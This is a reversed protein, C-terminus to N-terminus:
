VPRAPPVAPIAPPLPLPLNHCTHRHTTHPWTTYHCHALTFWDVSNSLCPACHHPGPHAPLLHIFPGLCPMLTPHHHCLPPAPPTPTARAIFWVARLALAPPPPAGQVQHVRCTTRYHHATAATHRSYVRCPSATFRLLTSPRCCHYSRDLRWAAWSIRRRRAAGTLLLVVLSPVLGTGSDTGARCSSHRARARAGSIFLHSGAPPSPETPLV